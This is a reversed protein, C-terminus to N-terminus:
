RVEKGEGELYEAVYFRRTLRLAVAAIPTALALGLIGFLVGFLLQAAITLAPPLSVSEEQIRPTVLYSEIMQVVVYLGTIWLATSVSDALGLLIAPVASLVPGINPIFTLVAALVALIPALPVGLLWLGGWTLVGIITMSVFQAKLWGLLARGAQEMMERARPRLSPALLHLFRSTYTRPAVAGYFGVFTIVLANGVVGLTTSFISSAGGAPALDAPDVMDLLSRIWPQEDVYARLADLAGPLSELLTQLQAGLAAGAVALFAVTAVVLALCFIALGTASRLGFASAIGNGGGRLFVALLIGAFVALLVDAARVLVILLVAGLVLLSVLRRSMRISM